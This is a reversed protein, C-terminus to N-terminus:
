LLSVAASSVFPSWSSRAAKSSSSAATSDRAFARPSCSAALREDNSRMCACSIASSTADCM